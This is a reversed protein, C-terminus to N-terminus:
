KGVGMYIYFGIAFPMLAVLVVFGGIFMNKIFEVTLKADTKFTQIACCYQADRNAESLSRPVATINKVLTKSPYRM